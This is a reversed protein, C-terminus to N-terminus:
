RSLFDHVKAKPLEKAKRFFETETIEMPWALNIGIRFGDDDPRHRVTIANLSKLYDLDRILAKRPNKLVYIHRTRTALVELTMEEEDLLLNLLQVHRNSM